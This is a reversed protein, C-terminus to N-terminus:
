IQQLFKLEAAFVTLKHIKTHSICYLHFLQMIKVLPIIIPQLVNLYIIDSIENQINWIYCQKHKTSYSVLYELQLISLLLIIKIFWFQNLIVVRYCLTFNITRSLPFTEINTFISTNLGLARALAVVDRMVGAFVPLFVVIVYDNPHQLSKSCTVKLFFNM